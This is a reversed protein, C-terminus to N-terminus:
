LGDFRVALVVWKCDKLVQCTLSARRDSSLAWRLSIRAANFYPELSVGYAGYAEMVTPMASGDGTVVDKRYLLSLPVGM